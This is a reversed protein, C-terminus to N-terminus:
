KVAVKYHLSRWSFFLTVAATFNNLPWRSMTYRGGHRLTVAATIYHSPRRSTTHRGGHCIPMAFPLWLGSVSLCPQNSFLSPFARCFALSSSIFARCMVLCYSFPLASKLFFILCPAHCFCLSFPVASICFFIFPVASLLSKSFIFARRM